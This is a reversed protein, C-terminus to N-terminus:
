VGASTMRLKAFLEQNEAIVVELVSWDIAEPSPKKRIYGMELLTTAARNLIFDTTHRMDVMVPQKAMAVKANEMSTKYYTGVLVELTGDPDTEAAYQAEMMAKIVAKVAEPNSKLLTNRAALLCDPYWKGYVDRGDSLMVSGPVRSLAAQGYPEILSVIDLAGAIFAELAEPVSGMYRVQIDAFSVGKEKLWNYPLTELTDAQFTGLSAGKLKEPSDLGPKAVIVCGEVGGGAIMTVPAGADYLTLFNTYPIVSMDVQGAGFLAVHDAFTPTPVLEITVGQAEALQKAHSLFLGLNCFGNGHTAKVSSAAQASASGLLGPVAIVLSAASARRFFTRRTSPAAEIPCPAFAPHYECM